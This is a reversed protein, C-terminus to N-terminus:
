LDTGVYDKMLLSFNEISTGNLLIAKYNVKKESPDVNVAWIHNLPATSTFIKSSNDYNCVTPTVGWDGSGLYVTGDDAPAMGRLPVTKKFYHTHHDFSAMYKYNDFVPIWNKLGEAVNNAGEHCATVIPDHYIAFKPFQQYDKSLKTLWELQEGDYRSVYGPDLAVNLINGILHAHYTKREKVEPVEWLGDKDQNLHQVFASYYSPGNENVAFNVKAMSNWGVDHNGVSVILPVLRKLSENITDQFMKLTQDLTHYCYPEGDDYAFDGGVIIAKPELAKAALTLEQSAKSLGLDGGYILNYQEQSTTSPLTNYAIKKQSKGDYFVELMYLTDADLGSLYVSYINREGKMDYASPTIYTSSITSYRFKGGSSDYDAKKDYNITVEKVGVNTHINVFVSTATEFPLTAYLQCPPGPPCVKPLYFARLMASSYIYKGQYFPIEFTPDNHNNFCSQYTAANMFIASAILFVFGFKVKKSHLQLMASLVEGFGGNEKSQVVSIPCNSYLSILFRTLLIVLSLLIGAWLPIISFGSLWAPISAFTFWAIWSALSGLYRFLGHKMGNGSIYIDENAKSKSSNKKYRDKLLIQTTSHISESDAFSSEVPMKNTIKPAYFKGLFHFLLSVVGVVFWYFLFNATFTMAFVERYTMTTGLESFIKFFM